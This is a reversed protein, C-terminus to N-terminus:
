ASHTCTGQLTWPYSSSGPGTGEHSLRVWSRRTGSSPALKGSRRSDPRRCKSTPTPSCRQSSPCSTPYAPRCSSLLVTRWRGLCNWRGQLRCVCAWCSIVSCLNALRRPQSGPCPVCPRSRQLSSWCDRSSPVPGPELWALM